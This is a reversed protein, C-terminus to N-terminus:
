LFPARAAEACIRGVDDTCLFVAWAGAAIAFLFGLSQMNLQPAVKGTVGIVVHGLIVTSLLPTGLRIALIVAGVAHSPGAGEVGARRGAGVM